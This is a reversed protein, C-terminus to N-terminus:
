IPRPHDSSLFVSMCFNVVAYENEPRWGKFWHEEIRVCNWGTTSSSSRNPDCGDSRTQTFFFGGAARVAENTDYRCFFVESTKGAEEETPALLFESWSHRGLVDDESREDIYERDIEVIIM